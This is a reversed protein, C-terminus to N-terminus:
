KMSRQILIERVVMKNATRQNEMSAQGYKLTTSIDTQRMLAQQVELPAKLQFTRYSHRYTHWGVSGLGTETALAGRSDHVPINFKKGRGRHEVTCAVGPVAGCEPCVVLCLGARRIWDQQIPSACYSTGRSRARFSFGPVQAVAASTQAKTIREFNALWTKEKPCSRSVLQQYFCFGPSRDRFM